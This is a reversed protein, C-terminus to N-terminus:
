KVKSFLHARIKTGAQDLRRMPMLKFVSQALQEFISTINILEILNLWLISNAKQRLFTAFILFLQFHLAKFSKFM